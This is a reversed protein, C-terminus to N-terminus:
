KPVIEARHVPEYIIIHDIEDHGINASRLNLDVKLYM